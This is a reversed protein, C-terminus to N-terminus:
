ANPEETKVTMIYDEMGSLLGNSNARSQFLLAARPDIIEDATGDDYEFVVRVLKKMNFYGGFKIKM